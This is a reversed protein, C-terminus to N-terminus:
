KRKALAKSIAEKIMSRLQSEDMPNPVMKGDHTIGMNKKGKGPGDQVKLHKEEEIPPCKCDGKAEKCEPCSKDKGEDLESENCHAEGLEGENCHTEEIEDEQMPKNYGYGEMLREFLEQDKWHKLKM